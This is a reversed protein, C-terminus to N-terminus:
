LEATPVRRLPRGPGNGVFIASRDALTGSTVRFLERPGAEAPLAGITAVLELTVTPAQELARVREGIRLARRVLTALLRAGHRPRDRPDLAGELEDHELEDRLEALEADGHPILPM